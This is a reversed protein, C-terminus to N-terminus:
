VWPRGDDPRVGVVGARALLEAEVRDSAYDWGEAARCAAYTYAHGRDCSYGTDTHHVPAGCEYATPGDEDYGAILQDCRSDSEHGEAPVADHM